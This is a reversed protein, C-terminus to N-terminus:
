PALVTPVLPFGPLNRVVTWAVAGVLLAVFASRPLMRNGRRLRWLGWIAFLPLGVLLFINDVAAAAFDGHLLDHTMRLGGCFPCNWGTILKFPCTPFLFGPGHPDAVGIYTLAAVTAAGAGAAAYIRARRVGSFPPQMMVGSHWFCAPWFSALHPRVGWRPPAAWGWM